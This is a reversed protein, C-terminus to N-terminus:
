GGYRSRRKIVYLSDSIDILYYVAALAILKWFSDSWSWIALSLFFLAAMAHRFIM